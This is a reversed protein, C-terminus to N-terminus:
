IINIKLGTKESLKKLGSAMADTLEIEGSELAKERKEWEMEGPLFIKDKGKAKPGSKLENIVQTIRKNFEEKNIMQNIDIAIFAHGANNVSSMYIHTLHRLGNQIEPVFEPYAGDDHGGSVLVGNETLAKTMKGDTDLEPAITVNKVIDRNEIIFEYSDTQPNMLYKKNQAGCGKLSLFPGELHVGLLQAYKHPTNMYERATKLFSCIDDYSATLSTALVGTVGHKLHYSLVNDFAAETSDMFDSGNGGHTHIDIFGASVYNDNLVHCECSDICDFHGIDVIRGDDILIDTLDSVSSDGIIKCNKLITKNVM